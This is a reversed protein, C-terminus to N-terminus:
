YFCKSWENCMRREIEEVDDGNLVYADINTYEDAKHFRTPFVAYAVALFLYRTPIVVGKNLRHIDQIKIFTAGARRHKKTFDKVSKVDPNTPEVLMPRFEALLTAVFAANFDKILQLLDHEMESLWANWRLGYFFSPTYRDEKQGKFVDEAEVIFWTGPLANAWADLDEPLERAHIFVDAYSAVFSPAKEIFPRLVLIADPEFNEALKWSWAPASDIKGITPVDFIDSSSDSQYINFDVKIHKFFDATANVRNLANGCGVVVQLKRVTCPRVLLLFAALSAPTGDTLVTLHSM